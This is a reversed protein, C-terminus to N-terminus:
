QSQTLKHRFVSLICMYETSIKDNAPPIALTATLIKKEVFRTQRQRVTSLYEDAISIHDNPQMTTSSKRPRGRKGPDDSYLWTERIVSINPIGGVHINSIPFCDPSNKSFVLSSNPRREYLSLLM